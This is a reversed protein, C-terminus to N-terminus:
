FFCAPPIGCGSSSAFLMLEGGPLVGGAPLAEGPVPLCSSEDDEFTILSDAVDAPFGPCVRYVVEDCAVVM